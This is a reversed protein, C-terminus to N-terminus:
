SSNNLLKKLTFLARRHRSKVTHLPEQLTNAIEQFTLENNYRLSLVARINPSLQNMLNKLKKIAFNNDFLETPLFAPSILTELLSNKNDSKEFNFFPIAKKKRLFDISANKAVAFLWNKIGTKDQQKLKKLNRWMKVFVEQTIDETANPDNINKYVFSYIPKLYRRILTELAKENGQRYQAILQEDSIIIMNLLISIMAQLICFTWYADQM